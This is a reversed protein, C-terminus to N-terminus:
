PPSHMIYAEDGVTLNPKTWLWLQSRVRIKACRLLADTRGVFGPLTAGKVAQRSFVTILFFAVYHHVFNKKNELEVRVGLGLVEPM